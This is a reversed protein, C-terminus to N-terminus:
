WVDYGASESIGRVPLKANVNMRKVKVIGEDTKLIYLKCFNRHKCTKACENKRKCIECDKDYFYGWESEYNVHGEFSNSRLNM